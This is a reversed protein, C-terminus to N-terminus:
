AFCSEFCTLKRTLLYHILSPSCHFQQHSLENNLFITLHKEYCPISLSGFYNNLRFIIMEILFNSEFTVFYYTMAKITLSLSAIALPLCTYSTM